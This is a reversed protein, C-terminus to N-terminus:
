GQAQLFRHAPPQGYAPRLRKLQLRTRGAKQRELDLQALEHGLRLHNQHRVDMLRMAARRMADDAVRPALECVAQVLPEMRRQLELVHDIEGAGLLVSEREAMDELATLLRWATAKENAIM